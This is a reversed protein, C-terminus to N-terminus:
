EEHPELNWRAPEDNTLESWGNVDDVYLWTGRVTDQRVLAGAVNLYEEEAEPDGSFNEWSMVKFIPTSLEYWREKAEEHGMPENTAM